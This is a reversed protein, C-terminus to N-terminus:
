SAAKVKSPKQCGISVNRSLCYRSCSHLVPAAGHFIEEAHFSSRVFVGSHVTPFGLTRAEEAWRDFDAPPVYRAVPAHQRTPRLYQGLTLIDVDVSRLDGMVAVVEESTEGILGTYSGIRGWETANADISSSSDTAGM